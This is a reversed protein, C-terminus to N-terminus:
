ASRQTVPFFSAVNKPKRLFAQPTQTANYTATFDGNEMTTTQRVEDIEYCEASVIKLSSMHPRWSDAGSANTV